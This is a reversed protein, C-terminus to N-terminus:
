PALSGVVNEQEATPNPEARQELHHPGLTEGTALSWNALDTVTETTGTFSSPADTWGMTVALPLAVLPEEGLFTPPLVALPLISDLSLQLWYFGNSLDCKAVYVPGFVSNAYALGQLLGHLTKGFQMAEPPAM